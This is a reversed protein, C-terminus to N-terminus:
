ERWFVMGDMSKHLDELHLGTDATLLKTYTKVPRGIAATGHKLGWLIVDSIVEDERRYLHRAYQARIERIVSSIRPLQCYLRTITPHRKWNLLLLLLIAMEITSYIGM